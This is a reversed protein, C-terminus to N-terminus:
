TNAQWPFAEKKVTQFSIWAAAAQASFPTRWERTTGGAAYTLPLCILSPLNSRDEQLLIDVCTEALRKTPQIITSCYLRGTAFARIGDFGIAQVDEPVRVGLEALM